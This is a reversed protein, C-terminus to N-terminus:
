VAKNGYNPFPIVSGNRNAIHKEMILNVENNILHVIGTPIETFVSVPLGNVFIGEVGNDDVYISAEKPLVFNELEVKSHKEEKIGQEINGKVPHLYPVYFHHEPNLLKIMQIIM